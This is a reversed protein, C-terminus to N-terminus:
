ENKNVLDHLKAGCKGEMAKLERFAKIGYYRESGELSNIIAQKTANFLLSNGGPMDANPFPSNNLPKLKAELLSLGGPTQNLQSGPPSFPWYKDTLGNGFGSSGPANGFSGPIFKTTYRDPRKKPDNKAQSNPNEKGSAEDEILKEPEAGSGKDTPVPSVSTKGDVHIFEFKLNNFGANQPLALINTKNYGVFKDRIVFVYTWRLDDANDSVRTYAFYENDDNTGTETTFFYVINDVLALVDSGGPGLRIKVKYIDAGKPTLFVKSASEKDQTISIPGDNGYVKMYGNYEESQLKM